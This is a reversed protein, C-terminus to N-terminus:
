DTEMVGGRRVTRDAHILRHAQIFPSDPERAVTVALASRISSLPLDRPYWAEVYPVWMEPTHRADTWPILESYAPQDLFLYVPDQRKSAMPDLFYFKDLADQLEDNDVRRLDFLCVFGRKRGYSIESQPFTFGRQGLQNSEIVGSSQISRFAAESTVHFVTGLLRPLLV